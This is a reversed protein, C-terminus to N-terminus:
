PTKTSPTATAPTEVKANINVDHRSDRGFSGRGFAFWGVILLLVVVVVAWAAGSGGGGGTSVPTGGGPSQNVQVDSM